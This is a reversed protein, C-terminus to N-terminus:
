STIPKDIKKQLDVKFKNYSLTEFHRKQFNHIIDDGVEFCCNQISPGIFIEFDHLKYGNELILQSTSELIGYVLGRWGAHVLGYVNKSCHAFYIPMCDAVQISCVIDREDTFVGDCNEITNVSKAFDLM